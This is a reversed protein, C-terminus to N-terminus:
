AFTFLGDVTSDNAFAAHMDREANAPRNVVVNIVLHMNGHGSGCFHNCKAVFNGTLQPTITVDSVKGPEIAANIGLEKLSLGHAVDETTLRLVVPEGKKLTLEGPTFAFRKAKLEIVRPPADDHRAFSASTFLALALFPLIKVPRSKM